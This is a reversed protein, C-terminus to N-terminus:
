SVPSWDTVVRSEIVQSKVTARRMTESRSAEDPKPAHLSAFSAARQQAEELSACTLSISRHDIFEEAAQAHYSWRKFPNFTTVVRFEERLMSM